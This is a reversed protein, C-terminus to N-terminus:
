MGALLSLDDAETAKQRCRDRFECEGCHRNLVLDPPTPSSLLAIIRELRKRVEGGLAATKVKLTAHDDGHIINQLLKAQYKDGHGRVVTNGPDGRSFLRKTSIPHSMQGLLPPPPVRSANPSVTELEHLIDEGQGRRSSRPPRFTRRRSLERDLRFVSN